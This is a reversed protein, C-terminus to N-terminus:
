QRDSLGVRDLLEGARKLAQATPVRNLTLPLAVNEVASLTPILNFAQFVFGLHQRRFDTREEEGLRSIEVSGIEISGADPSDIGSLMNLLTSKGAGSRGLLAAFRGPSRELDVGRLVQRRVDGEVYSKTFGSVRVAPVDLSTM